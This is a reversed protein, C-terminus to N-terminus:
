QKEARIILEQGIDIILDNKKMDNLEQLKEVSIGYNRSIRYLTEGKEVRHFILKVTEPQRSIPKAEVLPQAKVDPKPLVIVPKTKAEPKPTAVVSKTEIVPQTKVETTTQVNLTAKEPLSIKVSKSTKLPKTEIAPKGKEPSKIVPIPKQKQKQQGPKQKRPVSKEARPKVAIASIAKQAADLDSGMNDVKKITESIVEANSKIWNILQQYEVPNKSPDFERISIDSGSLDNIKHELQDIRTVIYKYDELSIKSKKPIFLIFLIVLALLGAGVLMIPIEVRDFLKGSRNSQFSSYPEDESENLNSDTKWDM